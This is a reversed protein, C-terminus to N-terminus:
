ADDDAERQRWAGIADSFSLVACLAWLWWPGWIWGFAILGCLSGLGINATVAKGRLSRTFELLRKV